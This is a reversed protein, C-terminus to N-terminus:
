DTRITFGRDPNPIAILDPPVDDPCSSSESPKAVDATTESSTDKRIEVPVDPVNDIAEPLVPEPVAKASWKEPFPVGVPVRAVQDRGGGRGGGRGRLSRGRSQQQQQSDQPMPIRRHQPQNFPEPRALIRPRAGIKPIQYCGDPIIPTVVKATPDYPAQLVDSDWVVELETVTSSPDYRKVPRWVFGKFSEMGNLMSCLHSGTILEGLPIGRFKDTEIRPMTSRVVTHNLGSTKAARVLKTMELMMAESTFMAVVDEVAGIIDDAKYKKEFEPDLTKTALFLNKALITDTM